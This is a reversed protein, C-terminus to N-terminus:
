RYVAEGYFLLNIVLLHLPSYVFDFVKWAILIGFLTFSPNRVLGLYKQAAAKSLFMPLIGSGDLPPVPLLNFIFLLINLSFVVNIFAVVTAIAGGRTSEIVHAFDISQPAAFAGGL